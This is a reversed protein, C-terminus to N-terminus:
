ITGRTRLTNEITSLIYNLDDKNKVFDLKSCDFTIVEVDPNVEKFLTIQKNYDEILKIMYDSTINREFERGRADIRNLLTPLDATLYIVSNPLPMDKTLLEYIKLYKKLHDESLTRQAFILNKLIHYDAVVPKNKNIYNLNLDELQKFRNCLFFMETQFSWETINTYFKNLFPNEDVIEKLNYYGFENSIANALSTKGVGIPGEIAIFPTIPM